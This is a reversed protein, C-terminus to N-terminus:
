QQRHEGTLAVHSRGGAVRKGFDPAERDAGNEDGEMRWRGRRGKGKMGEWKRSVSEEKGREQEEKMEKKRKNNEQKVKGKKREGKEEREKGRWKTNRSEEEGKEQEGKM